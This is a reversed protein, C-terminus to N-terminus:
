SLDVQLKASMYLLALLAGQPLPAYSLFNSGVWIAVVVLSVNSSSNKGCAWSLVSLCLSLLVGGKGGLIWAILYGFKYGADLKGDFWAMLTSFMLSLQFGVTQALFVSLFASQLVESFPGREDDEPEEDSQEFFSFNDGGDNYRKHYRDNRIKQKLENWKQRRLEYEYDSYDFANRTIPEDDHKLVRDYQVRTAENSLVQYALHICKFVEDAQSDKSVDPHWKRALLRYAKKIDSSSASPSIGLVSYHNQQHKNTVASVWFIDTRRRRRKLPSWLLLGGYVITSNPVVSLKGTLM